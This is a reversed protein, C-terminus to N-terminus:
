EKEKRETMKEIFNIINKKLEEPTTVSLDISTKNEIFDNYVDDLVKAFDIYNM